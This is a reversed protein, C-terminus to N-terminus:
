RRQSDAPQFHIEEFKGQGVDAIWMDGTLRDFSFRWPNRLGIAWIEDLTFDELVFPNDAPINYPDGNDVDIRLMKGLLQTRTQSRNGPDGGDGGDGLAIYLYGDPGFALDGANHNGFPQPVELLIKESDADAINANSPNVSYRAIISTGSNNTYNVFFYGNSTYNPHFVLGLLGREGGDRVRNRIDLFDVDEINGEKDMIKIVGPQEVVFIRDDGANAIDVPETFANSILQLEIEDQSWLNVSSMIMLFVIYKNM